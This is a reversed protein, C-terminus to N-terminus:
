CLTLPTAVGFKISDGRVSTLISGSCFEEVRVRFWTRLISTVHYFLILGIDLWQNLDGKLTGLDDGNVRVLGLYKLSMFSCMSSELFSLCNDLTGFGALLPLEDNRHFPRSKKMQVRNESSEPTRSLEKSGM